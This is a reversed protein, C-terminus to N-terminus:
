PAFDENSVRVPGMFRKLTGEREKKRKLWRRVGESRKKSKVKREKEEMEVEAFEKEVWSGADEEVNSPLGDGYESTFSYVPTHPQHEFRGKVAQSFPVLRIELSCDLGEALRLFNNFTPTNIIAGARTQSVGIAEALDQQRWRRFDLEAQVQNRFRIFSEQRTWLDRTRRNKLRNLYAKEYNM